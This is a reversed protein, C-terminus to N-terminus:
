AKGLPKTLYVVFSKGLLPNLLRETRRTWWPGRMIDYVLLKHYWRPLPAKDNDPGFLCKLWWYPSHLAHAHHTARPAFSQAQLRGILQGRKYIRIHGGEVQHYADSLAWCVREPWWRPVTVALTGGPRLVRDLETIARRDDHLHELVESIVMVDFADDAFPLRYADGVLALARAGQVAEGAEGMAALMASVGSVDSHNHDLAVVHAGRRFFEFAHRGGGCGLDLVRDGARLGLKDMDVTLM